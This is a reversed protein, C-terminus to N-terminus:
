GPLGFCRKRVFQEFGNELWHVEGTDGAARAVSGAPTFGVPYGAGDTAFVLWDAVHPWNVQRFAETLRPATDAGSAHPGMSPALRLGFIRWSGVEGGGHRLVFERYDTDFPSRVFAFACDFEVASVEGGRTDPWENFDSEIINWTEATM